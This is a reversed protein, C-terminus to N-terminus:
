LDRPHLSATILMFFPRRCGMLAFVAFCWFGQCEAVATTEAKVGNCIVLVVVCVVIWKKGGAQVCLLWCLWVVVVAAAAAASRELTKEVGARAVAASVQMANQNGNKKQRYPTLWSAPLRSSDEVAGRTRQQQQRLLVGEKL